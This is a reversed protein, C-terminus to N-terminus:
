QQRAAMYDLMLLFHLSLAPDGLRVKSAKSSDLKKEVFTPEQVLTCMFMMITAVEVHMKVLIDKPMLKTLQEKFNTPKM